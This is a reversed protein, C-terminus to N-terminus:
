DAQCRTIVWLLEPATVRIGGVKLLHTKVNVSAVDKTFHCQAM